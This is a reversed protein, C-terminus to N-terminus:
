RVQPRNISTVLRTSSALCSNASSTQKQARKEWESSKEEMVEVEREKEENWDEKRLDIIRTQFASRIVDLGGGTVEV